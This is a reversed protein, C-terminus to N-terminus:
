AVRCVGLPNSGKVPTIVKKEVNSETAAIMAAYSQEDDLVSQAISRM